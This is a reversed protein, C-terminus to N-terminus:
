FGSRGDGDKTADDEWLMPEYVTGVFWVDGADKDRILFLYPKDFTMDIKEVPVEYLYDFWDGAGSGGFETVAAAKIGDQTFEINAKHKANGIFAEKLSTLNALDAKGGEFVDTIGSKNLDNLLDLDYEFKFKPIHGIIETIVGQKFNENKLEKATRIIENLDNANKGNIYDELNDVKPMIGIYQLTTGNYEKLDKVFVKEKENDALAFHHFTDLSGYNSNIEKIYENLYREIETNISEETLSGGLYYEIGWSDVKDSHLFENYADGVTKRINDEGLEKVIDYNNIVTELDMGSIEEEINEFNNSSVFEPYHWSFKEHNYSYYGEGAYKPLFKEEWEMDIALANILVFDLPTVDDDQMM